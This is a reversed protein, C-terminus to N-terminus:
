KKRAMEFGNMIISIFAIVILLYSFYVNILADSMFVLGTVAVTLFGIAFGFIPIRVICLMINVVLLIVFVITNFDVIAVM